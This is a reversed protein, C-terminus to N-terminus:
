QELQAQIFFEQEVYSQVAIEHNTSFFPYDHSSTGPLVTAPVPGTVTPVPVQAAASTAVALSLAAGLTARSMSAGAGTRDSSPM